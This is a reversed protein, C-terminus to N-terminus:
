GQGRVIAQTVGVQDQYKGGKDAYSREVPGVIPHFEIQAIGEMAYVAVPQPNVNAIELTLHGRWEPELPTLNVIVGVRAYTSKGTCIGKLWRPLCFREYTRALVYGHPPIVIREHPEFTMRRFLRDRYAPDRNKPDVVEHVDRSFYLVESGDLRVDYGASTLGWSVMDPRDISESFPGILPADETGPATSLLRVYSDSLPM